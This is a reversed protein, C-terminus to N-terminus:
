MGPQGEPCCTVGFWGDTCPEGQRWRSADAWGDTGEGAAGGATDFLELLVKTTRPLVPFFRGLDRM